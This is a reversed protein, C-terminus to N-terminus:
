IARKLSALLRAELDQRRVALAARKLRLRRIDGAIMADFIETELEMCDLRVYYELSEKLHALVIKATLVPHNNTINADPFRRGHELEIELGLQFDKISVKLTEAGVIQRLKETEAVDIQGDKLNAWDSLGLRKCADTVDKQTVYITDPM